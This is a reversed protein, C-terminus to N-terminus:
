PQCRQREAALDGAAQELVARRAAARERLQEAVAEAVAEVAGAVGAWALLQQGFQARPLACAAAAGHVEARGAGESAMVQVAGSCSMALGCLSRDAVALRAAASWQGASLLEAATPGCAGVSLLAAAAWLWRRRM